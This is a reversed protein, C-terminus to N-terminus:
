FQGAEHFSGRGLPDRLECGIAGDSAAAQRVHPHHPGGTDRAFYPERAWVVLWISAPCKAAAITPFRTSGLIERPVRTNAANSASRRHKTKRIAPNSCKLATAPTLSFRNMPWSM